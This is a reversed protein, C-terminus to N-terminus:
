VPAEYFDFDDDDPKVRSGARARVQSPESDKDQAGARARVQAPQFEKDQAGEGGSRSMSRPRGGQPMEVMEFEECANPPNHTNFFTPRTDYSGQRARGFQAWAPVAQNYRVALRAHGWRIFWYFAYLCILMQVFFVAILVSWITLDADDTM